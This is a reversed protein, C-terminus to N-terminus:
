RVVNPAKLPKRLLDIPIPLHKVEAATLRRVEITYMPRGYLLIATARDVRQGTAVDHQTAHPVEPSPLLPRMTLLEWGGDPRQRALERKGVWVQVPPAPPKPRWRARAEANSESKARKLLGSKPCVYWQHRGRIEGRHGRWRSRHPPYCPVGDVLRADTEVYDFLHTLIHKQVVNGKDVHQCLESYIADWKHGVRANLFRRLPGLHENFHTTNGRLATIGERPLERESELDRALARRYGKKRVRRTSTGLRPREVLVKSMDARM